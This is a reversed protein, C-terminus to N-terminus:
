NIYYKFLNYQKIGNYLTACETFKLSLNVPFTPYSIISSRDFPNFFHILSAIM